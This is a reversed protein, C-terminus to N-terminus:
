NISNEMCGSLKSARDKELDKIQKKLFMVTEREMKLKQEVEQKEAKLTECYIELQKFSEELKSTSSEMEKQLVNM